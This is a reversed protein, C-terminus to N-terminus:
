KRKPLRDTFDDYEVPGRPDISVVNKHEDCRFMYAGNSFKVAFLAPAECCDSMALGPSRFNKIPLSCQVFMDKVAVLELEFFNGKEM